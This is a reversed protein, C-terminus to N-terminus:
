AKTIDQILLFKGKALTTIGGSTDVAEIDYYFTGATEVMTSSPTFKVKGAAADTIVGAVQDVQNSIDTPNEESNVTLKFTWNTIDIAVGDADMITYILRRTDGRHRIIDSM